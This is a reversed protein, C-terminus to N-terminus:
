EKKLIELITLKLSSPLSQKKQATEKKFLLGKLTVFTSSVTLDNLSESFNNSEITFIQSDNIQLALGGNQHIIKGRAVISMEAVSVGSDYTAKLLQVPDIHGDPKPTIEVKGDILSVEVNSVGVQRGLHQKV